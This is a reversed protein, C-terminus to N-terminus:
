HSVTHGASLTDPGSLGHFATQWGNRERERSQRGDSSNQCKLDSKLSDPPNSNANGSKGEHGAEWRGNAFHQLTEWFMRDRLQLQPPAAAAPTNRRDRRASLNSISLYCWWMVTMESEKTGLCIPFIQWSRVPSSSPLSNHSVLPLWSQDQRHLPRAPYLKCEAWRLSYHSSLFGNGGELFSGKGHPLSHWSEYLFPDMSIVVGWRGEAGVEWERMSFTNQQNPFFFYSVPFSSWFFRPM